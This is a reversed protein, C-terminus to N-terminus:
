APDVPAPGRGRLAAALQRYFEPYAGQRAPVRRTNGHIGLVGWTDEPETGNGPDVPLLGAALAAEQGDLGWKTYAAASGLVHFRPLTLASILNMSLHSRVGSEHQLSVFADDDAHSADAGIHRATEGYVKAAPGFLQLAQDILHSGLDFLTGGGDAVGSTGKWARLGHPSWREF